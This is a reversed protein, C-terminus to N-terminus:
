GVKVMVVSRFRFCFVYWNEMYDRSECCFLSFSLHFFIVVFLGLDAIVYM